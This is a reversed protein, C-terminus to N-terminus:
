TRRPISSWDGARHRLSDRLLALLPTRARSHHRMWWVHVAASRNHDFRAGRCGEGIMVISITSDEMAPRYLGVEEVV